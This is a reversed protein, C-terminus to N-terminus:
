CVQTEVASAFIHAFMTLVSTNSGDLLSLGYFWILPASIFLSYYLFCSEAEPLAAAITEWLM